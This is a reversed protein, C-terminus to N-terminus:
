IILLSFFAPSAIESHTVGLWGNNTVPLLFSSTTNRLVLLGWSAMMSTSREESLSALAQDSSVTSLILLVATIRESRSPRSLTLTHMFDLQLEGM